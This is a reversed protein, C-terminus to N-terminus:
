RYECRTRVDRCQHHSRPTSSNLAPANHSNKKKIHIFLPVKLLPNSLVYQEEPCGLPFHCLRGAPKWWLRSVYHWLLAGLVVAFLLWPWYNCCLILTCAFYNVIWSQTIYVQTNGKRERHVLGRNPDNWLQLVFSRFTLLPWLPSCVGKSLILYFLLLIFLNEWREIVDAIFQSAAQAQEGPPGPRFRSSCLPPLDVNPM